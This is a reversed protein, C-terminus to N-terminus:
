NGHAAGYAAADRPTIRGIASAQGILPEYQDLEGMARAFDWQVSQLEDLERQLSPDAALRKRVEAREAPPLEDALYM